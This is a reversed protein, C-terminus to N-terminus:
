RSYESTEKNERQFKNYSQQYIASEVSSNFERKHRAEAEDLADEFDTSMQRKNQQLAPNKYIQFVSVKLLYDLKNIGTLIDDPSKVKVMLWCILLQDFKMIEAFQSIRFLYKFKKSGGLFTITCFDNIEDYNEHQEGSGSLYNRTLQLGLGFITFIFFVTMQWKYKNFEFNHNKYMLYGLYFYLFVLVLIMAGPVIYDFYDDIGDRDQKQISDYQYLLTTSSFILGIIIYVKQLCKELRRYNNQNFSMAKQGKGTRFTKKITKSWDISVSINENNHDYMIQEVTRHMQTKIIFLTSSWEFIQLLIVLGFLFEAVKEVLLVYSHINRFNPILSCSEKTKQLFWDQYKGGVIFTAASIVSYFCYLILLLQVTRLMM